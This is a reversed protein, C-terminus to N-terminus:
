QASKANAFPIFDDETFTMNGLFIVFDDSIEIKKIYVGDIDIYFLYGSEGDKFLFRTHYTLNEKTLYSGHDIKSDEINTLAFDDLKDYLCYGLHATNITNIEALSLKSFPEHPINAEYYPVRSLDLVISYDSELIYDITNYCYLSLKTHNNGIEISRGSVSYGPVVSTLPKSDLKVGRRIM